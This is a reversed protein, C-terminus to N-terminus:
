GGRILRAITAHELAGHHLTPARTAARCRDRRAKARAQLALAANTRLPLKFAWELEERAVGIDDLMREDLWTLRYLRLRRRLFPGFQLVGVLLRGSLRWLARRLGSTPGGHGRAACLNQTGSVSM